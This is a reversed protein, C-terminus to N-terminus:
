NIKGEKNYKIKYLWSNNLVNAEVPRSLLKWTNNIHLSNIEECMALKWNDAQECNIAENYNIPERMCVSYM